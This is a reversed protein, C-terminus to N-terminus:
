NAPADVQTDDAPPEVPVAASLMDTLRKVEAALNGNEVMLSDRQAELTTFIYQVQQDPHNLM